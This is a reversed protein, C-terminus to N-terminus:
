PAKPAKACLKTADLAAQLERLVQSETSVIWWVEKDAIYAWTKFGTYGGYSNRANVMGCVIDYAGEDCVGRVYDVGKFRASEPDKLSDILRAQALRKLREATATEAALPKCNRMPPLGREAASASAMLLFTLAALASKM